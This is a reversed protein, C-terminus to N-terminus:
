DIKLEIDYTFLFTSKDQLHSIVYCVYFIFEGVIFKDIFTAQMLLLVKIKVLM